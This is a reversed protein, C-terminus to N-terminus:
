LMAHVAGSFSRHEKTLTGMDGGLGLEGWMLCEAAM